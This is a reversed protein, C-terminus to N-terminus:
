RTRPYLQMAILNDHEVHKLLFAVYRVLEGIDQWKNIDGGCSELEQLSKIVTQLTQLDVANMNM